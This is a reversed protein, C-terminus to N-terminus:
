CQAADYVCDDLPPEEPTPDPGCTSPGPAPPPANGLFLFGLDFIADTIDLAGSDDADAADPCPPPSDGLFLFGLLFVADSLDVRGSANADGRKFAPGPPPPPASFTFDDIVGATLEVRAIPEAPDLTVFNGPDGFFTAQRSAVSGLTEGRDNLATATGEPFGFGHVFFFRVSDVQQDFRVEGGGGGIEYSFSGSAYLGFIGETAVVGGKWRSGKFTLETAGPVTVGAEEGTNDFSIRVTEQALAQSPALCATVVAALSLTRPCM